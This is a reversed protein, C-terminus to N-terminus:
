SSTVAPPAPPLENAIKDLATAVAVLTPAEHGKLDCRSLFVLAARALEPTM